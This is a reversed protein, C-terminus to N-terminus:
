TTIDISKCPSLMAKTKKHYEEGMEHLEELLMDGYKEYVKKVIRDALRKSM